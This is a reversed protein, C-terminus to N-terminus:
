DYQESTGQNEDFEHPGKTAIRIQRATNRRIIKGVLEESQEPGYIYACDSLNLGHNIAQHISEQAKGGGLTRLM